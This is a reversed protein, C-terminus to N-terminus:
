LRALASEIRTILTAVAATLEAGPSPAALAQEVSACADCLVHAQVVALAGRLRHMQQRAAPLDGDLLAQQVTQMDERMTRIFLERMKESIQISDDMEIRAIKSERLGCVNLLEDYLTRLSIPKVLWVNMGMTMCRKGEERLANATVGIIPLGADRLRLEHVLEYGNMVPMNVDTLLADFAGPSWHQLAERGNSALSVRCGLKELQEKLLAQNIPNDEVVLIHLGLKSFGTTQPISEAEVVGNHQALRLTQAIRELHYLSTQWGQPTAQPQQDPKALTCVRVGSWLPECSSIGSLDLLIAGAPAEAPLVDQVIATAGWCEIWAALCQALERLPAWLYVPDPRLNSSVALPQTPELVPAPLTFTFSSGLGTESIVQLHGAMMKSLHGCISLGLGAGSTTHEQRHAQYFPEFLRKQQEQSIGIGTDTVQWQLAVDGAQDKTTRLRVTVRGADTFKLANSLLNSIIQRIRVVDGQVLGPVDVDVGVYLRVGKNEAVGAYTAVVDETMELPNFGDVELVMQGAEIKSIDLIDSILQLLVSSSNQITGLYNRQQQTLETLELLELTGLVGYLPTRIEHSITALFMSKAENAADASRKAAALAQQVQTHASIDNFVCIVANEGHYFVPAFNAHLTRSGVTFAVETGIVGNYLSLDWDHSIRTITETDGLWLEALHNHMLVQHSDHRLICLAVPATQIVTRSFASSEILDQHAQRAPKIVHHSYRRIAIWGGVPCGLILALAGLFQWRAYHFFSQYSLRYLATWGTTDADTSRVKFVWGDTTLNWGDVYDRSSDLSDILVAGSPSILEFEDFVPYEFIQEIDNLQELDFLSVAVIHRNPDSTRWLADPLDVDIYALLSQRGDGNYSQVQQWRVQPSDQHPLHHKLAESVRKVMPLYNRLTLQNPYRATSTYPLALSRTGQLDLVLLQPPPFSSSSWYSSYINALIVGLPFVDLNDQQERASESEKRALLFPKSFPFERGEYIDMGNERGLLRRQLPITDLGVRLISRHNQQAIHSLLDEHKHISGILRSFHFRMKDREEQVVRDLAWYCIGMLMLTLLLTSLLIANLHLSGSALKSISSSDYDKM